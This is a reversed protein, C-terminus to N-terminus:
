PIVRAGTDATAAISSAVREHLDAAEFLGLDETLWSRWTTVAAVAQPTDPFANHWVHQTDAFRELRVSVGADAAIKALSLSDDLLVEIDSVQILLPSQLGWDGLVPSVLPDTAEAGQLYLRSAEEASARSFLTDTAANREYSKAIVRLDLWPSFLAAGAPQDLKLDAIKLLLAAALGGGASDGGLAIRSGAFGQALLWRYATVADDLAAPFASDPALRYRPAYVTVGLARAVRSFYRGFGAPSGLRYGGGHFHLLAVDPPAGEPAFKTILVGGADLTSVVVDEADPAPAHDEMWARM